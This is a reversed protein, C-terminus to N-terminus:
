LPSCEKRASMEMQLISYNSLLPQQSPETSRLIHQWTEPPPGCLLLFGVEWLQGRGELLVGWVHAFSVCVCVYACVCLSDTIHPDAVGSIFGARSHNTCRYWANSLVSKGEGRLNLHYYLTYSLVFVIVDFSSLVFWCFSFLGLSPLLILSENMWVSLFGMLVSFQIWSVYVSSRSCVRARGTYVAETETPDQSCCPSKFM